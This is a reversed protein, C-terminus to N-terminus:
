AGANQRRLAEQGTAPPLVPGRSGLAHAAALGHAAVVIAGVVIAFAQQTSTSIAIGFSQHLVLFAASLIGLWFSATSARQALIQLM